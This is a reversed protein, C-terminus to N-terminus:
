EGDGSKDQPDPFDEESLRLTEGGRMERILVGRGPLQLKLAGDRAASVQVSIEGSVSQRGSVRFGGPAFMGSFSLKRGRPPTGYFVRLVGCQSHLYQEQIATVAGMEGDMQMVEGRLDAYVSLGKFLGDLLSGGGANTFFRKWLTLSLNSMGGNGLRTYIMSAWPLSWGCWQGMGVKVFRDISKAVIGRWQSSQPDIGDFPCLAALHSHHRHSEELFVGDWVAIEGDAVTVQPLRDRIMLWVPEPPIHLLEAAKLLDRNLRHIAALQFSANRGWANMASGRWEPSVSVPLELSGDATESLMVEYVRMVGRMFDFVEDRLFEADGSYDCYDFMMMAVWAACGHDIAGTWFGGMCTARDDVAHPLLYGDDIGAFCKANYRLRDKWSLVLDFLKKLNAFKGAKFGPANCLQVNINFHYDGQWPPLHDDEIWPGQLGPTVGDPNTMIGYKYLGYWYLEEMEPDDHTISPTDRWYEKWWRVSNASVSAFDAQRVGALEAVDRVDRYFSVVTEADRRRCLVAYSPDAPMPQVFAEGDSFAACVPPSFGREELSSSERFGGLRQDTGDFLKWAPMLSVAIDDTFGNGAVVENMGMDAHFTLYRDEGDLLYHIRTEGISLIQEHRTLEAGPPLTIVVRGVPILSPRSFGGVKQAAFIRRVAEPDGSKLAKCIDAFNHANSWSMGGRHDWLDACGISLNLTNGAGWLIVGTRGNGLMAGSAITELPFFKSVTLM